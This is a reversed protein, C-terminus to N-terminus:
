APEEDDESEEEESEEVGDWLSKGSFSDSDDFALERYQGATQVWKLVAESNLQEPAKLRVIHLRITELEDEEEWGEPSMVRWFEWFTNPEDLRIEYERKNGAQYYLEKIPAKIDFLLQIRFFFESVSISPRIPFCSSRQSVERATSLEIQLHVV